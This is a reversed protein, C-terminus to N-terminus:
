NKLVIGFSLEEKLLKYLLKQNLYVRNKNLFYKLFNYKIFMLYFNFSVPYLKNIRRKKLLLSTKLKLEKKLSKKCM